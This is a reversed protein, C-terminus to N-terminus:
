VNGGTSLIANQLETFKNDIYLKTDAVYEVTMDGNETNFISILYDM